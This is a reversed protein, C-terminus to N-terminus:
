SQRQEGAASDGHENRAASGGSRGRGVSGRLLNGHIRVETICTGGTGSSRGGLVVDVGVRGLDRRAARVDERRDLCAARVVEVPRHEVLEEVLGM